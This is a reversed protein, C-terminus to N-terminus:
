KPDLLIRVLHDKGDGVLPIWEGSPVERGTAERTVTIAYRSSQYRYVIRFEPWEAPIRPRVRFRDGRVEFGLISEIASRYMWSASGTYWTWGGRGIHPSVGYIDAAVVYPEVKYRAANAPTSAHNIPNLMAYLEAAKEGEGLEAFAIMTWIAAHTYQGGNERVGPLYGKIYGPDLSTKNFPPTFLQIIRNKRDILNEEAAKMAIRAREPNGAGSIVSWSQAIADIKCEENLSSGLPSGDDFYARRYWEGDWANEEIATKLHALHARYASVRDSDPEGVELFQELTSHLFWAVWVSEGKGEHGVRNMGDNWDGSGMLPLGHAGVKLSRDLARACHERLTASEKSVTPHTYSDEQGPALIPAEIFPVDEELIARDGTVRIYFSVVYPLWLLDDSFHTRVGRGTPPHWWHQVDGEKFQRAAARLIQARTIEPRSYVLAMVDQLQDRFGYAGGSQYFGTRAWIRCALTQYLVWRNVLANMARDPTSITVTGLTEEWFKGVAAYAADVEALERYKRVLVRAAEISEAQGLTVVVFREEGPELTISTHFAACPDLGAGASGSLSMRGLAAPNAPGRNRGIFEQRDCTYSRDAESIDAFAVRSAFENNYPNRAILAGTEADLEPIVFPASASRYVGLVWEVYSFVSITRATTGLNRLRIRSFKVGADLAVFVDLSQEIAHSTHEFRTYGQGHRIVYPEPERIPLPTPSWFEGTEDDRLYIAEGVPDSVPDNSWPTLRNERSNVSWVYGGGSESVVFGFDRDNAVVNVWPAPTWQGRNLVIVYERTDSAFGGLGNFFELAPPSFEIAPLTRKTTPAVFEDPLERTAKRLKLLDELPGLNANLVMRASSRLLVVDEKPMLDSRRAFVGGSKDLQAHSGSMRVQRLIEEQLSQIYSTARENLVVLDFALGKLRLYEHAHLLERVMPMDKEDHIQVLVIPVDGSIGYAWLNSQMRANRSLAHSSPRLASDLYLIRGGLKQYLHAKATSVNLHRLQVRSQTWAFEAERAFAHMSRYKGILNLAEARSNALGTAFTVSVRSRAPLRVTKRLAFIPDLVPGVSGSLRAGAAAPNSPGRGRGVFKSRDTEYELAGVSKGDSVVLHFAWLQSEHSARPRRTALLAGDEAVFETQVFLNSFAPHAQDDAPKALLIEMFSTVDFDREESSENTLTVRRLEVNDEPSVIVETRTTTRGDKRTFEVKDENLSAEFFHPETAIPQHAASWIRGTKLNRIYLFSGWHDRTPDERWRTIAFKGCRSFGSGSSTVMVCYNGNSLLQTRPRNLNVDSYARPAGDVATYLHGTIRVEEARPRVLPVAQPMKEQLLLETAQILPDAHFREQHAFGHLLNDLAVLSMGQHHAMYSRLIVRTRGKPLREATYDIAEYFGYCSYAGMQRLRRLNELASRSDVLAALMTSYPSIVLEESLGRKLGLGPIGFPGYQYNMNLDRAHYGSESVGWPVGKENGYEIQRRVIAEYTQDLLSGPNRRMVLLPMLYEFMTATWAILARGRRLAAMQRGLRFWHEQPVDGKAIALFSTLRAESALLDYYSNDRRHDTVNFGISFLKRQEDYLFRFDMEDVLRDCQAVLAAVREGENEPPGEVTDRMIQAVQGCAAAIWERIGEFEQAIAAAGEARRTIESALEELQRQLAACVELSEAASDFAAARVRVLEAEVSLKEGSDADIILALEERVSHLVDLLGERVRAAPRAERSFGLLFQKFAILHAAINGSDVTSIYQPRLPALSQTDYWNFFHGHMRELKALTAFTWETRELFDRRGVYGLDYASASSLLQLGINTPSTRHAVVPAPDEQFNDPALWNGSEGVFSEFFRWTSRAYMRFERRDREELPRKRDPARGRLWVKLFPNAVWAILFPLAIPLAEHRLAIILGSFFVSLIPGPAFFDRPGLEGREQSSVQAFSVWELLKRRSVFLRYFVRVIADLQTWAHEPLYALTLFIQGLKIRTDHLGGFIHAKWTIGGRRLWNGTALTSYVPFLFMLLIASTWITPDGPMVTWALLLWALTAPAVLSRRLNDFIKWRSLLSLPNRAKGGGAVPARPFLWPMIQWDGRTWRHLRKLFTDYDAPYDDFFEVDTVLASRAYSGEFLDHSLIANEPVRDALALEFADVVYLGKGTFSGEGFVDQYVDSVATTYPDLGINGSSVRAFRSAFASSATISIRPQLIGYGATVRERKADYRPQNLPHLIMGILRRAADRPLQTDSDLTIVYAVKALLAPEATRHFYSTDEAGRILRNFELIKGRKREWGIWRGESANWQRRRHFLHFRPGDPAPYRANLDDIGAQAVGLLAADDPMTESDADAYDGLLALLFTPDPNALWHVELRELLERVVSEKTFLTPIMIMTRASTPVGKETEMRPPLSPPVFFHVYHNLLSLALESAPFISLFGFLVLAAPSAGLERAYALVFTLFVSVSLAVLGLYFFTPYNRILRLGREGGRPRYGCLEEFERKGRDILYYGVHRATSGEPARSSTEVLKEAVESESLKSRKAIREVAHRYRDRTAFDMAPFAGSPDGLLIRNTESVNEFLERWDMISLMRMSSIINGVTVQAAAQARHELHTVRESSTSLTALQRELWEIAPWVNPDQDRLRQILQVVFARDFDKPEGLERELIRVVEKPEPEPESVYELIRDALVDAQRRSERAAVIRSALPALEQILVIRLTIALAWIESIELRAVSQFAILFRQVTALDLRCDTHSVIASAIAYVRPYGELAGSLLQPLGRYYGEPLDRRIDRLQNEIIHFNDVFWEAAPSVPQKERIAEVLSLYADFLTRSNRRIEPVLSRARRMRPRLALLAALHAAYQEIREESFAEERTAAESLSGM